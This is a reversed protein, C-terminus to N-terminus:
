STERIPQKIVDRDLDLFRVLSTTFTTSAEAFSQHLRTPGIPFLSALDTAPIRGQAIQDAVDRLQDLGEKYKGERHRVSQMSECVGGIVTLVRGWSM